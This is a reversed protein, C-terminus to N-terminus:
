GELHIQRLDKYVWGLDDAHRVSTPSNTRGDLSLLGERVFHRGALEDKKVVPLGYPEM